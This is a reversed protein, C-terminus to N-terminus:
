SGTDSYLEKDIMSWIVEDYVEIDTAARQEELWEAVAQERDKRILRAAIDDKVTLFDQYSEETWRAPWIVSFKGRTRIPGAVAGVPSRRAVSYLTPFHLSDVYGLDGRKVRLAARETLRFAKRQFEELTNIERALKQALMEDSVMIEFLHVQAPILYEERHQDYFDRQAQEDPPPPAAISDNRMIEALTYREFLAMKHRFYDTEEMKQLEAEYVLIDRRKLMYIVQELLDYDEFSPRQEPPLFKRVSLLYDILTTQGGDWTALILEKEDRDLQEDDFDYKPLKEVVPPPYILTRKHTVYDAVARDVTVPYKAAISDFFLTTFMQRKSLLLQQELAPRMRAYEERMDNLKKDVVKVLHYGLSTQFPPSTEGVALQFVVREFEDPATGRIFYGMDGRNRRARQDLSYRYAMQEFNEGAKLKEFVMQATDENDLLIHFARIQYELDAYIERIEAETVSVNSSVHFEYLADLLFRSRNAALIKAVEPSQDIHKEYAARVLLTHSILSDLFLRKGDFEDQASRFGIPNQDLFEQFDTVTIRTDGVRAVVNSDRYGCGVQLGAALVAIMLFMTVSIATQRTM